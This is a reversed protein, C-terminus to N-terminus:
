SIKNINLRNELLLKHLLNKGQEKNSLTKGYENILNYIADTQEHGESYYFLLSVNNNSYLNYYDFISQFYSYDAESLSHGYFKIQLPINNPPLISIPVSSSLMKRYTKSFLRLDINEGNSQIAKDDIGFIINTLNCSEQCKEGCLKGHVNSYTCPASVSLIDFINTYNFSLINVFKLKSFGKLVNVNKIRTITQRESVVEKVERYEQTIIDDLHKFDVESFRTLKNLLNFADIIYKENIQEQNNSDVLIEKLYKCFRKEFNHLENFLKKIILDITESEPYTQNLDLNNRFFIELYVYLYNEISGFFRNLILNNPIKKARSLAKSWFTFGLNDKDFIKFLTKKIISEIDYWMLNASKNTLYYHYLLIEWFGSVGDRLQELGFSEGHTDILANKFFDEYSSKLNCQLDFGNGLILLQTNM